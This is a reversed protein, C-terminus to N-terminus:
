TQTFLWSQLPKLRNKASHPPAHVAQVAFDLLVVGCILAILSTEAFAITLWSLTLLTIYRASDPM